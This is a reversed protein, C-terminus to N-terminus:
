LYPAYKRRTSRNMPWATVCRKRDGRLTYVVVLYRGSATRGYVDFRKEGPFPDDQIVVKRKFVEEVESPMVHHRAIHAKNEEDWDFDSVIWYIRDKTYVCAFGFFALHAALIEFTGRSCFRTSM